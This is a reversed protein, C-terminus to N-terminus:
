SVAELSDRLSNHQWLRGGKTKEIKLIMKEDKTQRETTGATQDWSSMLSDIIYIIIYTETWSESVYLSIVVM